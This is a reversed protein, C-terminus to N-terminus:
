YTTSRHILARSAYMPFQTIAGTANNVVSQQINQFSNQNANLSNTISLKPNFLGCNYGLGIDGGVRLPVSQAGNFAPTAVSQGGGMKYYFHNNNTPILDAHANVPATIGIIAFSFYAIIM